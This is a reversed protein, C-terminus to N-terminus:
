TCNSPTLVLRLIVNSCSCSKYKLAPPQHKNRDTILFVHPKIEPYAWDLAYM